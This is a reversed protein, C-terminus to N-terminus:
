YDLFACIYTCIYPFNHTETSHQIRGTTHNAKSYQSDLLLLHVYMCILYASYFLICKPFDTHEMQACTEVRTWWLETLPSNTDKLHRGGDSLSRQQPQLRVIFRPWKDKPSCRNTWPQRVDTIWTHYVAADFTASPAQSQHTPLQESPPKTARKSTRGQPMRRLLSMRSYHARAPNSGSESYLQLAM